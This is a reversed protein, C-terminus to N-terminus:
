MVASSSFITLILCEKDILFTRINETTGERSRFIKIGCECGTKKRQNSGRSNAWRMVIDLADQTPFLPLMFACQQISQTRDSCSYMNDSIQCGSSDGLGFPHRQGIQFRCENIQSKRGFALSEPLYAQSCFDRVLVRVQLIQYSCSTFKLESCKSTKKYGESSTIRPQMHSKISVSLLSTVTYFYAPWLFQRSLVFKALHLQCLHLRSFYAWRFELLQQVLGSKSRSGFLSWGGVCTVEFHCCVSLRPVCATDLTGHPSRSLRNVGSERRLTHHNSIQSGGVKTNFKMENTAISDITAVSFCPIKKRKMM